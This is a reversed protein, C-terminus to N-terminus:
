KFSEEILHQAIYKIITDEFFVKGVSNMDKILIIPVDGSILAYENEKLEGRPAFTMVTTNYASSLYLNDGSTWLGIYKDGWRINCQLRANAPKYAIFDNTDRLSENDIAYKSYKTGEVLQGFRSNKKLNKFEENEYNEVVILGGKFKKFRQEFPKIHFFAFYPNNFTVKNGLLFCRVEARDVRLRNVTEVFDLFAETESPLYSRNVKTEIFEDFVIYDVNPYPVSKKKSSISLAVFFIKTEGNKILRHDKITIADELYYGEKYLDQMFEKEVDPLDNDYRRLWVTQHECDLAMRKYDFTKGNGRGSVIFSLFANYGMVSQRSYYIDNKNLQCPEKDQVNDSM